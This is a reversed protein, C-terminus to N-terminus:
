PKFIWECNFPFHPFSLIIPLALGLAFTKTTQTFYLLDAHDPLTGDPMSMEHRSLRKDENKSLHRNEKCTQSFSMWSFRKSIRPPM